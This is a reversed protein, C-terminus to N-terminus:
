SGDTKDPPSGDGDQSGDQAEEPYLVFRAYNEMNFHKRAADRVVDSTLGDVLEDYKLINAPDQGLWYNSSLTRRWFGNEKLAAERARRDAEQVKEINTDSAGFQKLSDIQAFVARTLQDVSDPACGFSIRISYRQEPYRSTSVGVGVGYTGGMEERLVERLRIRLVDIASGLNYSNKRSWEFPGTFVIRNSSKPELGKHITKEIVGRPPRIGADRWTETRRTAPLGGLYTKVLPRIGDPDINGVFFFTFDSADAFRDKYIEFSRELNMEDLLAESWVRARHHYQSMTVQITDGFAAGPSASRNELSGRIRQVYAQYAEPDKRPATFRLYILRFMTELDKLSASGRVGERLEGIWPSVRVVKGALKKELGIADFAGLGGEQVVATATAAALYDEDSVLGHGGPSFASFLVEDNKFDTPKLVVRVGNSLTWETVDLEAIKKEAVIEGPAPPTEVLPRASAADEYPEIEMEDVRAIVATLEEETPMTVGQKEPGDVLVVRNHSTIWEGALRNVDALRIEPVMEQYLKFEYEIGPIPEGTLFHRIYESAYRRSRAKDRETYAREMGRLAGTKERDLESQTFGHLRVRRAETLVAELGRLIGGERVVAGQLYFESTRIFRGQSSYAFLFPADPKKTLERLRANLMRNYLSEVINQRYAGASDQERVPQKYYISVNTRTAEPDTAVAFLTEEHGPLPYLTRERPQSAAPIRGFHTQILGEIWATNFDGVAIVSMLDPRYWERYFRKAAEHRFTDLVAKKGIPLREAYRSGKLLIPFQKDRLRAGAGRGLRWEEIVVGREKDIEEAEFLIGSAWDELIQFAQTVILASDTPVQLMYVTEDFSTYANLDPGFRMGISELYNVLDLKPFNRTGNFAMHEVFHALGQQDEDELISGANVVLRLEARNEPRQNERIVYRIGNPLTGLTLNPDVPLKPAPPPAVPEPPAAQQPAACAGFLVLFFLVPFRLVCKM